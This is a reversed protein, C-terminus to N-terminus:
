LSMINQLKLKRENVFYDKFIMKKDPSYYDIDLEFLNKEEEEFERFFPEGFEYLDGDNGGDYYYLFYVEDNFNIKSYEYIEGKKFLIYERENEFPNGYPRSTTLEYLEGEPGRDISDMETIWYDKICMIKLRNM